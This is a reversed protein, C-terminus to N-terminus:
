RARRGPGTPKAPPTPQPAAFVEFFLKEDLHRGERQAGAALLEDALNMLARLNGAAHECLTTVLEDTLLRPAGAKEVAHRLCAELEAPSAREFMLRVRMRSNVPAFDETRLKALLREDGAFVTALLAHSDLRSSALLRLENLVTPLMEQAEDILLVPRFLAGDIHAQWKERLAKAGAWRNHPVLTVGFLDGVERYFDAVRAHPRDLHCVKVDRLASLRDDVIRLAGSKGTGPIGSVLAFGGERALHEARWVFNEIQPTCLLSEVPVDQGFPNWKLGYLALLKKNM